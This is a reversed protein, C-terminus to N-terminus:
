GARWLGTLKGRTMSSLEQWREIPLDVRALAATSLTEAQDTLTELLEEMGPNHGVVMVSQVADSVGSVARLYDKPEGPYFAPKFEIEGEYGCEEAVAEATARARKATSSLILGPTLSEKRILLGMEHAEHKGRKNLPRDHDALDPHKWSSKAHRLILLTKM